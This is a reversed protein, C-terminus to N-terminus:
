RGPTAVINAEAHRPRKFIVNGYGATALQSTLASIAPMPTAAETAVIIRTVPEAGAAKLAHSLDGRRVVKGDMMVTGVATLSLHLEQSARGPTSVCGALGVMIGM